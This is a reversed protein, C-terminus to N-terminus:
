KFFNCLRNSFSCAVDVVGTVIEKQTDQYEESASQYDDNLSKLKPNVFRVGGKNTDIIQL